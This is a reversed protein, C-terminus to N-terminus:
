FISDKDVIAFDAIPSQTWSMFYRTIFIFHYM